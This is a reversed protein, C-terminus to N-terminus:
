EETLEKVEVVQGVTAGLTQLPLDEGQQLREKVFATLTNWPVGEECSFDIKRQTLLKRFKNAAERADRPFVITFITKILAGHGNEELWAFAEARRAADWKAGINAHFYPKLEARCAPENGQAQLGLTHVGAQMFLDPIKKHKLEYIQKSLSDAKEKTYELQHELDRMERLHSRAKELPTAGSPPFDDPM